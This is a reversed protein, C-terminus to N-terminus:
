QQVELTVIKDKMVIEVRDDINKIEKIKFKDIIHTGDIRYFSGEDVIEAPAGLRYEGHPYIITKIKLNKLGM